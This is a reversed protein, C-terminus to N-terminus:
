FAAASVEIYGLGQLACIVNLQEEVSALCTEIKSIVPLCIAVRSILFLM